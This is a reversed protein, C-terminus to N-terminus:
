VGLHCPQSRFALLFMNYEFGIEIVPIVKPLGSLKEPGTEEDTFYSPQALELVKLAVLHCLKYVELDLNLFNQRETM